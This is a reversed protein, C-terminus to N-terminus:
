AANSGGAKQSSAVIAEPIEVVFSTNRGDLEYRLRGGLSEVMGKSISLGIGIGSREGKTTYFPRMILRAQTTEIGRGSDTVRIVAENGGAVARQQVSVTVWKEPLTVVADFANNLLSILVQKLQAPVAQVSTHAQPVFELHVGNSRFKELCLSTVQGVIKSVDFIEAQQDTGDQAFSRLGGVIESIRSVTDKIKQVKSRVMASDIKGGALGLSLVEASASVVALPTNIEHAISGAMEGLATLRAAEILRANSAKQETVDTFTTVAAYLLPQESEIIPESNIRIWRVEENPTQVGMLVNRQPQGTTIAVIAPHESGVFETGDGKVCKWFPDISSRGLLQADTLGLIRLASKNFSVISGTHNQLVVGDNMHEVATRYFKLSEGLEQSRRAELRIRLLDTVQRSLGQLASIQRASLQRPVYDIVCLTGIPMGNPALLPAGAYANIKPGDTVLPNDCFRQDKTADPVEFVNKQLIAHACFAVERPTEKAELGFVAKFWQRNEDVLSILSTPAGCIAAALEVFVQYESEPLTDLLGLAHLTELRKEEEPHLPAAVM